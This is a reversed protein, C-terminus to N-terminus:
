QHFYGSRFEEVRHTTAGQLENAPFVEQMSAKSYPGFYVYRKRM